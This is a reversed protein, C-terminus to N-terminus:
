LKIKAWVREHAYYIALKAFFEVFGIQIAAQVHGTVMWAIGVTTATALCRWTVGKLLSRTHSESVVMPLAQKEMISTYPTTTSTATAGMMLIGDKEDGDNLPPISNHTNYNNNNNMSSTTEGARKRRAASGLQQEEIDGSSTLPSSHNM